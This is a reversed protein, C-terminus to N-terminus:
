RLLEGAAPNAIVPLKITFLLKCFIAASQRRLRDPPAPTLNSEKGTYSGLWRIQSPIKSINAIGADM